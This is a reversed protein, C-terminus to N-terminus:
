FAYSVGIALGYPSHAGIAGRQGSVRDVLRYDTDHHEVTFAAELRWHEGFPRRLGGGAFAHTEDAATTVIEFTGGGARAGPVNAVDDVAAAGVGALWYWDWLRATEYRREVFVSTRSLENSGDVVTTAAIGLARNPTEYDFAVDVVTVGLYWPDRIRWRGVLGAGVMDNAPEGQGLLVVGSLGVEFRSATAEPQAAASRAWALLVTALVLVSARM